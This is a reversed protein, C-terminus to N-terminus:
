AIACDGSDNSDLLATNLLDSDSVRRRSDVTTRSEQINESIESNMKESDISDHLPVDDSQSCISDDFRHSWVCGQQSDHPINTAAATIQSLAPANKAADGCSNRVSAFVNEAEDSLASVNEVEERPTPKVKESVVDGRLIKPKIIASFETEVGHECSFANEVSFNDNNQACGFSDQETVVDTVVRDNVNETESIKEGFALKNNCDSTSQISKRHPSTTVASMDSSLSVRDNDTSDLVKTCRSVPSLAATDVGDGDGASSALSRALNDLKEDLLREILQERKGTLRKRGRKRAKLFRQKYKAVLGEDFLIYRKLRKKGIGVRTANKGTHGSQNAASTTTPSEEYITEWSKEDPKKYNKNTYYEELNLQPSESKKTKRKKRPSDTKTSTSDEVNKQNNNGFRRRTPKGESVTRNQTDINLRTRTRRVPRETEVLTQESSVPIDSNCTEEVIVDSDVGGIAPAMKRCAVGRKRKSVSKSESVDNESLQVDNSLKVLDLNAAPDPLGGDHGPSASESAVVDYCETVSPSVSCMAIIEGFFEVNREDSREKTPSIARIPYRDNKRRTAAEEIMQLKKQNRFLTISKRRLRTSRRIGPIEDADIANGDDELLGGAANIIFRDASQRPKRKPKHNKEGVISIADDPEDFPLVINTFSDQLKEETPSSSSPEDTNELRRSGPSVVGFENENNVYLQSRRRKKRAVDSEKEEDVTSFSILQSDISDDM